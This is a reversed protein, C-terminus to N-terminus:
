STGPRARTSRSRRSAGETGMAVYAITLGVFIVIFIAIYAAIVALVARM